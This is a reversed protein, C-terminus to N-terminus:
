LDLKVVEWCKTKEKFATWDCKCGVASPHGSGSANICASLWWSHIRTENGNQFFVFCFQLKTLGVLDKAIEFLLQFSYFVGSLSHPLTEWFAFVVVVAIEILIHLGFIWKWCESLWFKQRRLVHIESVLGLFTIKLDRKSCVLECCMSLSPM